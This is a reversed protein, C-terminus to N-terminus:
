APECVEACARLNDIVNATQYGWDTKLDVHGPVVTMWRANIRQALEVAKKMTEVLQRRMEPDRLVFTPNHFDAHAVFVGMTMGLRDLASAIRDQEERSRKMMGNDELARFGEDAMFKLQDALDKGASHQFMGFHPAYLLKFPGPKRELTPRGESEVPSDNTAAAAAALSAGGAAMATGLTVGAALFERRNM